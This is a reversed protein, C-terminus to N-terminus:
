FPKSDSPIISGFTTVFRSGSSRQLCLWASLMGNNALCRSPLLPFFSLTFILPLYSLHHSPHLLERGIYTLAHMYTCHPSCGDWLAHSLSSRVPWAGAKASTVLRPSPRGEGLARTMPQAPSPQVPQPTAKPPWALRERVQCILWMQPPPTSQHSRIRQRPGPRVCSPRMTYPLELSLSIPSSAVRHSPGMQVYSPSSTTISCLAACGRVCSNSLRAQDTQPDAGRIFPQHNQFCAPPCFSYPLRMSPLCAVPGTSPTPTPLLVHVHGCHPLALDVVDTLRQTIESITDHSCM